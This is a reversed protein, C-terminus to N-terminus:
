CPIQQTICHINGGGLLIDRAPIGVIERDKCVGKLIDIAREDSKTNDGGFMPVLAAGNVFYFNVYSAALREGVERFDEGEEFEYNDLDKQNVLVPVDPVPLKHIVIDRGKADKQSKLYEYSSFSLEYQPDNEDDTWALVVEGPSVFACVNDVHENTEDNYIGRPLWLVKEAGLYDKLQEEIEERSLAPNRGDSLLCAETVMVTGEGDSHISGGELVFPAADYYDAGVHELFKIAVADDKDWSAYLGDVEGGWANFNWNIGRIRGNADTVFTPGVDRAWADDSDIQIVEKRIDFEERTLGTAPFLGDVFRCAEDYHEADAAVYLKERKIIETYIRGFSFLAGSRDIGWSGPRTPYIMLTGDHKAFEAPMFFGDKKPTSFSIKM